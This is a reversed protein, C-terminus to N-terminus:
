FGTPHSHFANTFNKTVGEGTEYMLGLYYHADITLTVPSIDHQAAKEMWKFAEAPDKPVGDGAHYRRALDFQANLDGQEAAQKLRDIPNVSNLLKSNPYYEHLKGAQAQAEANGQAAAKLFLPVCNSRQDNGLRGIHYM